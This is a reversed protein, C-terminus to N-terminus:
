GDMFVCGVLLRSVREKIQKNKEIVPKLLEIMEKSFDISFRTFEAVNVKGEFRYGCLSDEDYFKCSLDDDELFEYNGSAISQTVRKLTNKNPFNDIIEFESSFLSVTMAKLKENFNELLERMEGFGDEDDSIKFKDVVESILSRNEEVVKDKMEREHRIAEFVRQLAEHTAVFVTFWYGPLIHRSGLPEGAIRGNKIPLKRYDPDNVLDHITHSTVYADNARCVFNTLCNYLSAMKLYKSNDVDSLFFVKNSLFSFTSGSSKKTVIFLEM